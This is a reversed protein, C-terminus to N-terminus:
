SAAPHSRSTTRSASEGTSASGSVSPSASSSGPSSTPSPSPSPSTSPSESPSNSPSPASSESPDNTPPSSSLQQRLSRVEARLQSQGDKSRVRESEDLATQLHEQASQLDQEDAAKRANALQMRVEKRAELSQARSSDVVRALPWLASGPEAVSAAAVGGVSAAGFVLAAASVLLRRGGRFKRWRARRQALEDTPDGIAAPAYTQSADYGGSLANGGTPGPVASLTRPAYAGNNRTRLSAGVADMDLDSASVASATNAVHDGWGWLARVFPDQRHELPLVGKALADILVDDRLIAAADAAEHEENRPNQAHPASRMSRSDNM